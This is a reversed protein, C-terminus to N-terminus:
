LCHSAMKGRSEGTFQEVCARVQLLGPCRSGWAKAVRAYMHLERLRPLLLLPPPIVAGSYKEGTSLNPYCVCMACQTFRGSRCPFSDVESMCAHVRARVCVRACARVHVCSLWLSVTSACRRQRGVEGKKHTAQGWMATLWFSLVFSSRGWTM